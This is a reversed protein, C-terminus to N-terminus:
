VVEVVPYVHPSPNITSLPHKSPTQPFSLFNHSWSFETGLEFVFDTSLNNLFRSRDRLDRLLIAENLLGDPGPHPLVPFSMGAFGFECQRFTGLLSRRLIMKLSATLSTTPSDSGRGSLASRCWRQDRTWSM